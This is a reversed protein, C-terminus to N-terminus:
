LQKEDYCLVKAGELSRETAWNRSQFPTESMKLTTSDSAEDFFIDVGEQTPWIYCVCKKVLVNLDQSLLANDLVYDSTHKPSVIIIKTKKNAITRAMLRGSRWAKRLTDLKILYITDELGRVDSVIGMKHIVKAM